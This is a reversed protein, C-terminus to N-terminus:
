EEESEQNKYEDKLIGELIKVEMGDFDSIKNIIKHKGLCSKVKGLMEDIDFNKWLYEIIKQYFRGSPEQYSFSRKGIILIVNQFICEMIKVELYKKNYDTENENPYIEVM